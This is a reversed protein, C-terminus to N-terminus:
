EVVRIKSGDKLSSLGTTVIIDGVNIGSVIEVHTSNEYGINVKRKIVKDKQVVFVTTETDESLVADKPVLLTNEHTDYVINVRTFMGPKLRRTKDRVEVTVKITGTGADVIPSIRLIKGQFKSGPLADAAIEAPFGIQLKSMEKEPVHLVALLPNFDTICFVAQDVKVMNGVKIFRQSIIGSIPACIETYDLRLKALDHAAKQIHHEFRSKEYAEKSIIKKEFLSQNMKFENSLKELKSKSQFFELKLQEDDLKAVVQDAKVSDGEEVFIKKVVGAVKAVVVAEAEAELTTSGTYVAKVSGQMVEAIEVPIGAEEEKKERTQSNSSTSCSYLLWAIALIFVICLLKKFKIKM